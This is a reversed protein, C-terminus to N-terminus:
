LNGAFSFYLNQELAHEAYVRVREEDAGPGGAMTLYKVFDETRDAFGAAQQVPTGGHGGLYFEGGSLAASGGAAAAVEFIEVAAGAARAEIAACAGAIGFGLVVVDTEIDWHAVDAARLPRSPSCEALTTM